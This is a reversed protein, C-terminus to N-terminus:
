KFFITGKKLNQNHLHEFIQKRAQTNWKMHKEIRFLERSGAFNNGATLYARACLCKIINELIIALSNDELVLVKRHDSDVVVIDM